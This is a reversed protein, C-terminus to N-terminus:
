KADPKDAQIDPKDDAYGKGVIWKVDAKLEGSIPQTVKGETREFIINLANDSRKAREVLKKVLEDVLAEDSLLEKLAESLYKIGKPRGKPNGSQGPQWSKRGKRLNELSKPHKGPLYKEQAM